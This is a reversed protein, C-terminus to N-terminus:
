APRAPGSRSRKVALVGLVLFVVLVALQAVAFPPEKQMPALANLSPVKLFLQVVLVFTNLYLALVACIVYIRRWAGALHAGYLAVLAIALLVLSLVGVKHSPLLHDFSFPFAFGTVSTAITAVLFLTNWGGLWQGGLLGLLVVLGAGIGVLSLVVHAATFTSTSLGWIM